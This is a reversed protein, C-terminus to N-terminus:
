TFGSPGARLGSGTAAAFSTRSVNRRMPMVSSSVTASMAPPWVKPLVWPAPSADLTPGGGSAAGIWWIPRPQFLVWPDPLAPSVMVLPMSIVHVDVGVLHDLLKRHFRNSRFLM